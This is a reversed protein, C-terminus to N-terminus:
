ETVEGPLVRGVNSPLAYEYVDFWVAPCNPCDVRCCYWGADRHEWIPGDHELTLEGTPDYFRTGVPPEPPVGPNRLVDLQEEILTAAAANREATERWYVAEARYFAAIDSGPITNSM